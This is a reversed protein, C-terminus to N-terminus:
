LGIQAKRAHATFDGANQEWAPIDQGAPNIGWWQPTGRLYWSAAAAIAFGGWEATHQSM